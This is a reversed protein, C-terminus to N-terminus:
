RIHYSPHQALIYLLGRVKKDRDVPDSFDWPDAFDGSSNRDTNLYDICEQRQAQTLEVRLLWALHDVVEHDATRNPPVLALGVDYGQQPSEGSYYVCDRIFNAREVMGQSSLWGTGSPWGNVGPPQTPRQGTDVLSNDIRYPPVELGTTRMFGVHHEVPSKIVGERTTGSFFAKSMFITKFLHKLDYDSERFVKAMNDVLAQSPDPYVFFEWIKRCIFSAVDRHKLTFDVMDRYEQQGNGFFSEGFITKVGNDHRNSQFQMIRQDRGPGAKDPVLIRRYGTFARSAEVIDPETYGNDAGLTFLEWFERAFNENPANATSVYGDLWILMTWDINMLYLLDDLNDTGHHRWLNVHDFFWYRSQADLIDSSTAFHDHWFLAVLEQFPNENHVMMWQWWRALERDSPFDPDPVNINMSQQELAPTPGLDLMWDIYQEYGMQNLKQLESQRFAFHTRELFYVRDEQSIQSIPSLDEDVPPPTDTTGGGEVCASTTLSLAAVLSLPVILAFLNRPM